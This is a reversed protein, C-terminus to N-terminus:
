DVEKQAEKWELGGWGTASLVGLWLSCVGPGSHSLNDRRVHPTRGPPMATVQPLVPTPPVRAGWSPPCASCNLVHGFRYPRNMAEQSLLAWSVAPSQPTWRGGGAGKEEGRVEPRATEGPEWGQATGDYPQPCSM